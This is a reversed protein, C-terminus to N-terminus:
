AILLFARGFIDLVFLTGDMELREVLASADNNNAYIYAISMYILYFVNFFPVLFGGVYLWTYM